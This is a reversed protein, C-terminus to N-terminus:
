RAVTRGKIEGTRKKTLFIHSELITEKQKATLEIWHVPKFTNRWHLQKMEAEAASTADNGWLKIAAKLTLQTLVMELIQPEFETSSIQTATYEYSKGKMAPVYKQVQKRTRMLRQPSKMVEISESTVVEPAMAPITPATPEDLTPEFETGSDDVLPADVTEPMNILDNMKGNTEKTEEVATDEIAIAMDVGPIQAIDGVVGPIEHPTEPPTILETDDGFQMGHKDMFTILQPQDKAMANVRDIVSQPMPLVTWSRRALVRGTNLSIFLHGGQRNSSPGVSIAGSTRAILSNRQGDEEHVQCYTGFPLSCQKYNLMQGSMITKPSHYDSVGGKAPFYNLLKVVFFVMHTLMKVPNQTFPISHRVARTREKVVRIRREIYPEHENASTLNLSPAGPLEYMLEAFPAFENDATVTIVQFGKQLYYMFISKFAAFITATKRNAVHTVTTFCINRSLTIFFPIKNVFFVDFSLTINRHLERIETPVAIVNSPVHEPTRRTTKGKLSPISTGWIKDAVNADDTTVPCEQVQNSRLIWKYDHDSPFALGAMLTRAKEAAAIQRKSFSKMNDEVTVVFTFEERKPDYFHLGSSHMRFIMNPLGNDERWVIFAGDYSDYTVRYCTIVDKLSLINTIAKRSFWVESLQGITATHNVELTGGNSRLTLPETSRSVNTVMRRNCFLSMTSQNDLLIVERLNLDSLKGKSQKLAVEAHCEIPPVYHNFLSFHQTFQFHSQNDDSDSSEDSEELQAKM